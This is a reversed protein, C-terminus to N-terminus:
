VGLTKMIMQTINAGSGAVMTGGSLYLLWKIWSPAKDQVLKAIVLMAIASVSTGGTRIGATKGFIAGIQSVYGIIRKIWVVATTQAQVAKKQVAAGSTKSEQKKVPAAEAKNEQPKVAAESQPTDTKSTGSQSTSNQADSQPAEGQPTSNQTTKKEGGAANKWFDDAGEQAGISCFPMILFLCLLAAFSKEKGNTTKM